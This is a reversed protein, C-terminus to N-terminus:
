TATEFSYIKAADELGGVNTVDGFGLQKMLVEAQGSRNGSRCYLEYKKNKDLKQIEDRFTPSYFDINLAQHAHGLNFEGLTRVDIVVKSKVNM